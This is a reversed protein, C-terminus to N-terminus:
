PVAEYKTAFVDSKCPYFEGKTGKVVWDNLDCRMVGELTELFVYAYNIRREEPHYSGSVSFKGFFPVNGIWYNWCAEETLQEAEIVVPKSVFKM